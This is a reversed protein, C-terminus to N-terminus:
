TTDVQIHPLMRWCTLYDRWQFVPFKKRLVRDGVEIGGHLFACGGDKIRAVKMGGAVGRFRQFFMANAGVFHSLLALCPLM